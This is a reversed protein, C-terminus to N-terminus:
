LVSSGAEVFSRKSPRLSLGSTLEGCAIGRLGCTRINLAANLDRCMSLGCSPCQHVRDKLEKPVRAGCSSCKQSTYRPDVLVVSKGAREAKSQTFRVLKGWSADQIHKALHHNKLMGTINLNEFVVLDASDVLRRSVQHHFEDRLDTVRKNIRALKVRAKARNKSGLKKRHLSKETSRNKKQAQIYYRPYEFTSGESTKVFNTLGLDVGIATEPEIKGPDDQETTFIVYWAKTRDRKITCTKIQGEIERHVFTRIAGPLKSLTLRTGNLKFGSQPYTFSNYRGEGKFRPYGKKKAGERVRRFFNGMAKKLRRLVDQEAQALVSKLYPNTQKELTLIGAQDEYSRTIGEQEWMNKRDALAMNWLHRCTELTVGLQAEQQKNPYIRFKYATKM